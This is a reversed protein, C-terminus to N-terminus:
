NYPCSTDHVDYNIYECCQYLTFELTSKTYVEFIGNNVHTYVVEIDQLGIINRIFVYNNM